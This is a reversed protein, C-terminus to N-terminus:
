KKEGSERIAKEVNKRYGYIEHGKPVDEQSWEHLSEAISECDERTQKQVALLAQEIWDYAYSHTYEEEWEDIKEVIDEAMKELEEPTMLEGRYLKAPHFQLYAVTQKFTLLQM